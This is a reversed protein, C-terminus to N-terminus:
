TTGFIRHKKCPALGDWILCLLYIVYFQISLLNYIIHTTRTGDRSARFGQMGSDGLHRFGGFGRCGQIGSDMIGSDGIGQIESDRSGSFGQM